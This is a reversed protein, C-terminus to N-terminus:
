PGAPSCRACRPDFPVPVREPGLDMTVPVPARGVQHGLQHLHRAVVDEAIRRERLAERAPVPIAVRVRSGAATVLVAGEGTARHLVLEAVLDWPLVEGRARWGSPGALRTWSSSRVLAVAPVVSAVMVVTGVLVQVPLLLAGVVGLGLALGLHLLRVGLGRRVEISGEAFRVEPGFPSPQRDSPPGTM